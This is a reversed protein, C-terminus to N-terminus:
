FKMLCLKGGDDMHHGGEVIRSGDMLLTRSMEWSRLVLQGGDSGEHENDGITLMHEGEIRWRKGENRKHIRDNNNYIIIIIINHIIINELTRKFYAGGVARGEWCWGVARSSSNSGDGNSSSSSSGGGGNSSGGGGGDTAAAAAATAVTATAAAAVVAMATAAAVAAPTATGTAAAVM